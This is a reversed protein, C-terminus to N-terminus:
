AQEVALWVAGFGLKMGNRITVASPQGAEGVKVGDAYTGNTSKLDAIMIKNGERYFKAHGRSSITPHLIVLDCFAPDRGLIIGGSKGIRSEDIFLNIEEGREPLRGRLLWRAHSIHVRTRATSSRTSKGQTFSLWSPAIGAFQPTLLFWTILGLVVVSSAIAAIAVNASSM